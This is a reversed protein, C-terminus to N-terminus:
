KLWWEGLPKYVAHRHMGAKTNPKRPAHAGAAPLSYHEVGPKGGEWRGQWGANLDDIPQVPDMPM